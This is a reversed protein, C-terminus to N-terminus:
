VARAIIAPPYRCRKYSVPNTMSVVSQTPSAYGTITVVGGAVAHVSGVISGKSGFRRGHPGIEGSNRGSGSRSADAIWLAAERLLNVTGTLFGTMPQQRPFGAGPVFRRKGHCPRSRLTAALGGLFALVLGPHVGM